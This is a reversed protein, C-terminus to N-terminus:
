AVCNKGPTSTFLLAVAPEILGRAMKTSSGLRNLLIVQSILSICDQNISLSLSLSTQTKINIKNSIFFITYKSQLLASAVFTATNYMKCSCRTDRQVGGM